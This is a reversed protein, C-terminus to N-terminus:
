VHVDFIPQAAEIDIDLTPMVFLQGANNVLYDLKRGTTAEMSRVAAQNSSTSTVDLTLPTVNPLTSLLSMRTKDPATAFVQLNQKQFFQVLASEIGGASCGAILVTNLTMSAFHLECSCLPSIIFHIGVMLQACSSPSGLITSLSLYPTSIINHAWQDPHLTFPAPVRQVIASSGM